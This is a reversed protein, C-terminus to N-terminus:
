KKKAQEKSRATAAKLASEFIAPLREKEFVELGAETTGGPTAVEKILDELTKGGNETLLAAGIFTQRALQNATKEDLGSAVGAKALKQVFYFFYAPGAGSLATVADLEEEKVQACTGISLFIEKALGIDRTTVAANACFCTASEGVRAALNPMARIIKHNGLVSEFDAIKKGAAISIFLPQQERTLTRKIEQMLEEVDKPKVAIIIASSTLLEPLDKAERLNAIGLPEKDKVMVQFGKKNLGDAIARGMKGFGVIGIM